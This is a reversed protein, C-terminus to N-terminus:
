VKLDRYVIGHSHLHALAVVVEAAFFRYVLWLILTHSRTVLPAPTNLILCFFFFILVFVFLRACSLCRTQSTSFRKARRIYEFLEGGPVHDM